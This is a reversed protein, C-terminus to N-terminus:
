VSPDYCVFEVRNNEPDTVFLARWHFVPFTKPTVELGAQELQRHREEYHELDIVFAIHDLTSVAPSVEVDRDFLVFAQPHGEVGDAVRFFVFGEGERWVELGVTDRYFARM